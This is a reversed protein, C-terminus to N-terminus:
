GEYILAIKYVVMVLLCLLLGAPSARWLAFGTFTLTSGWYMPNEMVNFPFGTVRADMLIGCYDGLYTGTIGLAWMSSWVLIQGWAMLMLSISKFFLNEFIHLKTQHRMANEFLSDRVLGMTFISFALVYCARYPSGFANTLFRTRHEKRAVINWALPNFVICAGALYLSPENWNILQTHSLFM